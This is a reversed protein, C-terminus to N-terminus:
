FCLAKLAEANHSLVASYLPTQGKHNKLELCAFNEELLYELVQNQHKSIALHLATNSQCDRAVVSAGKQVLMMTAPLQGERAAAHLATEENYNRFDVEAGAILLSKLLAISGYQAAVQLPTKGSKYVKNIVCGRAIMTSILEPRNYRSIINLGKLKKKWSLIENECLSVLEAKDGEKIASKFKNYLVRSDSVLKGGDKKLEAQTTASLLLTYSGRKSGAACAQIFSPKEKAEMTTESDEETYSCEENNGLLLIKIPKKSSNKVLHGLQGDRGSGWAYVVGSRAIVMSHNYGTSIYSVPEDIRVPELSSSGNERGLHSRKGFSIVRGDVTLALSMQGGASIAQFKEETSLKKPWANSWSKRGTQGYYNWGWSYIRRSPETTLALSHYGGASVAAFQVISAGDFESLETPTLHSSYDGLGLQGYKSSGWAYIRGTDTLALSHTYGASISVFKENLPLLHPYQLDRDQGSGNYKANGWSYIQGKKTLALSHSKGASIAIFEVNSDGGVFKRLEIPKSSSSGTGVQGKTNSGWAYLKGTSTLALTHMAGCSVCSIDVGRDLKVAHFTSRSGNIGLGLNGYKGFGCAYLPCNEGSNPQEIAVQHEM